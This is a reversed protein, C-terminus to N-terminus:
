HKRQKRQKRTRSSSSKKSKSSSRKRVGGSIKPATKPCTLLLKQLEVYLKNREKYMYQSEEFTMSKLKLNIIEIQAALDEIKSGNVNLLTNSITLSAMQNKIWKLDPSGINYVLSKQREENIKNIINNDINIKYLENLYQIYYKKTGDEDEVQELLDEIKMFTYFYMLNRLLKFIKMVIEDSISGNCKLKNLIIMDFAKHYNHIKENVADLIISKSDKDLEKYSEIVEKFNEESNISKSTNNNEM